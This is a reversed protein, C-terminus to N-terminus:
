GVILFDLEPYATTTVATQFHRAPDSPHPRATESQHSCLTALVLIFSVIAVAFTALAGQSSTEHINNEANKM